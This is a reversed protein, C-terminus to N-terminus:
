HAIGLHDFMLGVDAEIAAARKVNRGAHSWKGQAGLLFQRKGDEGCTFLVWDAVKSPLWVKTKGSILPMIGAIEDERPDMHAVVIVHAASEFLKRLGTKLNDELENWLDYGQFQLIKLEDVIEDSLLTVTDVIITRVKGAAALDHAKKCAALWQKRSQVDLQYFKAGQTAPYKTAGNGDCNIVLVPGPSTALCATTKGVKMPGLLLIRAFAEDVAQDGTMVGDLPPLELDPCPHGNNDSAPANV